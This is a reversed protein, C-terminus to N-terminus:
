NLVKFRENLDEDESDELAKLARDLKRSVKDSRRDFTKRKVPHDRFGRRLGNIVVDLAGVSDLDVLRKIAEARSDLDYKRLMQEATSLEGASVTVTILTLCATRLAPVVRVNAEQGGQHPRPSQRM